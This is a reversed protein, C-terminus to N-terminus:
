AKKNIKQMYARTYVFFMDGAVLLHLLWPLADM